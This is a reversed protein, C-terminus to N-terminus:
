GMDVCMRSYCMVYIIYQSELKLDEIWTFFLVRQYIMYWIRHLNLAEIQPLLWWIPEQMPQPGSMWFREDSVMDWKFKVDLSMCIMGNPAPWMVRGPVINLLIFVYLGAIIMGEESESEGSFIPRPAPQIMWNLTPWEVREQHGSWWKPYIIIKNLRFPTPGPWLYCHLWHILWSTFLTSPWLM